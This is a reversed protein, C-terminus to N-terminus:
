PTAAECSNRDDGLGESRNAATRASFRTAIAKGRVTVSQLKSKSFIIESEFREIAVSAMVVSRLVPESLWTSRSMFCIEVKM